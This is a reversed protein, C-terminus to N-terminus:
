PIPRTMPRRGGFGFSVGPQHYLKVTGAITGGWVHGKEEGGKFVVIEGNLAGGDDAQFDADLDHRALRLEFPTSVNVFRKTEKADRLVITGSFTVEKGRPSTVILVVTDGSATVKTQALAPTIAASLGLLVACTMPRM